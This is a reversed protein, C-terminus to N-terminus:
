DTFIADIDLPINFYDITRRVVDRIHSVLIRDAKEIDRAKIAAFMAMHDEYAAEINGPVSSSKSTYANLLDWITQLFKLMVTNGSAKGLEMHFNLDHENFMRFDNKDLAAKQKQLTKELRALDAGSARRVVLKLNTREAFLRAEIFEKLTIKDLLLHDQFSSIYNSPTSLQVVTGIGQRAEVLGLASLKFIAERVTNRSVKLQRSLEDQSPLVDGPKFDGNVIRKHLVEFVRDATTTRKISEMDDIM